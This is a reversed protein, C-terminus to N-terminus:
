ALYGRDADAFDVTDDFPLTTSLDRHVSETFATPPKQNM